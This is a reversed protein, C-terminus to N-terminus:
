GRDGLCSLGKAYSNGRMFQLVLSHGELVEQDPLIEPRKWGNGNDPLIELEQFSASSFIM